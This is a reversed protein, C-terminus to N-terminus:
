LIILLIYSITLKCCVSAKYHMTEDPYKFIFKISNKDKIPVIDLRKMLSKESFPHTPWSPAVVDKNIIPSFLPVVMKVLDEM